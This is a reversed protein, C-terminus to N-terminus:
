KARKVEAETVAAANNGWTSRIYTLVSAIDADSLQGRWSPMANKGFKVTRIIATPDDAIMDINGSLMRTGPATGRAGHCAACTQAYIWGGITASVAPGAAAVEEETVASAQNGWASRIYTAVAAVDANSLRSRWSPMPANYTTGNVVLPGSMGNVIIVIM